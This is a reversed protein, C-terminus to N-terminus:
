RNIHQRFRQIGYAAWALTYGAAPAICLALMIGWGLVDWGTATSLFMAFVVAIGLLLFVPILRVWPSEAARCLLLQFCFCPVAHFGLALLDPLSSYAFSDPWLPIIGLIPSALLFVAHLVATVITAVLLIQNVRIKM